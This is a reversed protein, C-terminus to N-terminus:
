MRRPVETRRHKILANGPQRMKAYERELQSMKANQM